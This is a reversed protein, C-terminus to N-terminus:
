PTVPGPVDIRIGPVAWCNLGLAGAARLLDDANAAAKAIAQMTQRQSLLVRGPVSEAHATRYPYPPMGTGAESTSFTIGCSPTRLFPLQLKGFWARDKLEAEPPVIAVYIGDADAIADLLTTAHVAQWTFASFPQFPRPVSEHGLLVGTVKWVRIPTSEAIALLCREIQPEDFGQPIPILIELDTM